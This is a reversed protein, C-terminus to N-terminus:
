RISSCSTGTSMAFSSVMTSCAFVVEKDDEVADDNDDDDEDDEDDEDRLKSSLIFTLQVEYRIIYVM